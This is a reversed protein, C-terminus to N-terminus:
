KYKKFKSLILNFLKIIGTEYKEYSSIHSFLIKNKDAFELAEEDSVYDKNDEKLALEYKSRVLVCISYKNIEIIEKYYDKAKEFSDRDNADYFLFFAFSGRYYSKTINRYREDGATDWIQLKFIHNNFKLFKVLFDIGITPIYNLSNIKLKFDKDNLRKLFISKGISAKGVIVLKLLYDYEDRNGIFEM